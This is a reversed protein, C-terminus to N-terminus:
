FRVGLGHPRVVVREGAAARRDARRGLVVMVVGGVVVAVGAGLVAAGAPATTYRVPVCDGGRPNDLCGADQHHLALLVVGGLSAVAGAGVLGWGAPVLKSRPVVPREVPVPEVPESAQEAVAAERRRRLVEARADISRLRVMDRVEVFGCISCDDGFSTLAEGTDGAYLTVTVAYEEEGGVVEARMAFRAGARAAAERRCAEDCAEAEMGDVPVVTVGEDVLNDAVLTAVESATDPPLEGTLLPPLVVVTVPGVAQAEEVEQAARGTAVAGAPRPVASTALAVSAVVTWLWRRTTTM